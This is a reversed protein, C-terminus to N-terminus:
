FGRRTRAKLRKRSATSSRRVCVLVAGIAPVAAAVDGASGSAVAHAARREALYEVGPMFALPVVALLMFVAGCAASVALPQVRPSGPAVLDWISALAITFAIGALRGGVLWRERYGCFRGRIRRPVLDGLGRGSRSRAATNLLHYICWATVLAVPARTGTPLIAAALPVLSLVLVSALYASICFAKRRRFRALIAPVALRLM